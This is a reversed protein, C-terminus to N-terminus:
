SKFGYLGHGKPDAVYIKYAHRIGLSETFIVHVPTNPKLSTTQRTTGDALNVDKPWSIFSLDKPVGDNCHVRINQVSVHLVYGHCDKYKGGPPTNAYAANARQPSTAGLVSVILATAALRGAISHISFSM